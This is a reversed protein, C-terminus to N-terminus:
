MIRPTDATTFTGQTSIVQDDSLTLKIRYYYLTNTKLFYVYVSNKNSNLSFVRSNEFSDLESVEIVSSKVSYGAPMGNIKYSIEVPVGIDIRGAEIYQNYIKVVPDTNESDLYKTVAPHVLSIKEDFLPIEIQISKAETETNIYNGIENQSLSEKHDLFLALFILLLAFVAIVSIGILRKRYKCIFKRIKRGPTKKNNHHHHHHHHKADTIEKQTKDKNEDVVNKQDINAM